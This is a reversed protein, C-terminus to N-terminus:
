GNRIEERTTEIAQILEQKMETHDLQYYPEPEMGLLRELFTPKPQTLKFKAGLLMRRRQGNIEWGCVPVAHEKGKLDLEWQIDLIEFRDVGLRMAWHANNRRVYEETSLLM